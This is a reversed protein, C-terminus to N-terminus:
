EGKLEALIARAKAIDKQQTSKDGGALLVVLKGDQVTYYVRYGAGFFFRLESVEGGLEKHDGFHGFEAINLIRADIRAVAVKDKLKSLWKDYQATTLIECQM